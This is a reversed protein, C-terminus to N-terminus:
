GHRAGAEDCNSLFMSYREHHAPNSQKLECKTTWPQLCLSSAQQDHRSTRDTCPTISARALSPVCGDDWSFSLM